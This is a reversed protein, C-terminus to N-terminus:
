CVESNELRSIEHILKKSGLSGFPIEEKFCAKNMRNLIQSNLMFKCNGIIYVQQAIKAKLDKVASKVAYQYIMLKAHSAPGVV